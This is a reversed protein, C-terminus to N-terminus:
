CKPAFKHSTIEFSKTNLSKFCNPLLFYFIVIKNTQLHLSSTIALKCFPSQWFHFFTKRSLNTMNPVKLSLLSKSHSKGGDTWWEWYIDGGRKGRISNRKLIYSLSLDVFDLMKINLPQCTINKCTLPFIDIYSFSLYPSTKFADMCYIQDKM